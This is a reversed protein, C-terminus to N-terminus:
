WSGSYIIKIKLLSQGHLLKCVRQERHCFSQFLEASSLLINLFSIIKLSDDVHFKELERAYNTVRM